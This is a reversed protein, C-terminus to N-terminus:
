KNEYSIFKLKVSSPDFNDPLQWPLVPPPMQHYVSLYLKLNHNQNIYYKFVFIFLTTMIFLVILHLQIQDQSDRSNFIILLAEFFNLSFKLM